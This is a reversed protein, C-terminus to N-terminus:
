LKDTSDARSSYLSEALNVNTDPMDPVTLLVARPISSLNHVLYNCQCLLIYEIIAEEGNQAARDPDGQHRISDYSIVGPFTNRMLDVSTQEDSAVFILAGPNEQLLRGVVSIFKDYRVSTMPVDRTPDGVADTGRIQVGIVYRGELHEQFFRNAKEIIFDRPRVYERILQSISERMKRSYPKHSGVPRLLEGDITVHWGGSSSVFNFEDVFEGINHRQLPNENIWKRVYPPIRTAPYEPIAPEFYYEWVTNRENYGNPTWYCNKKGFYIIPIRGENLAEYIHALVGLILNFLGVDWDCVIHLVPPKSLNVKVSTETSVKAEPTNQM